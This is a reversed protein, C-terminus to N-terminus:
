AARRARSGEIDALGALVRQATQNWRFLRAVRERGRLGRAFCEGPDSMASTLARALADVDHTPALWASQGDAVVEPM